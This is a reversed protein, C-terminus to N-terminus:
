FIKIKPWPLVPGFLLCEGSLFSSTIISSSAPGAGPEHPVKPSLDWHTGKPCKQVNVHREIAGIRYLSWWHGRYLIIVLLPGECLIIVGWHGWVCNLSGGTAGCETFHGWLPGGNLIIVGLQGGNLIIVELPRWM